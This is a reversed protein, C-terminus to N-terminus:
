NTPDAPTNPNNDRETNPYPYFSRTREPDADTPGSRGFRRNDELRFGSMVMEVARNVYIADLVDAETRPGSYAPLGAGIGLADDAPEQTIVADLAAIAGDIDQTRARAEAIILDMESPYYIPVAAGNEGFFGAARFNQNDPNLDDFYFALRKDLTDPRLGEPLGLTLDVPQYVNDTTISVFAIPNPTIDDYRLTSTAARDVAQASSIANPYQGLFLQHRARLARLTNLLDIGGPTRRLFDASAPAAELTTIADGIRTLNDDLLAEREVFEAETATALPAREFFLYLTENALAYFITAYAQLGSRVSPTQVLSLNSLISNAENRVLLSQSWLNNVIANDGDVNVGGLSLDNESLNGPNILRLEGTSFGAATARTYVPSQQGVSYRRQAGVSLGILGDASALVQAETVAGPNTFETECSSAAVACIALSLATRSLRTKVFTSLTSM